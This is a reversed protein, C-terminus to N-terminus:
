HRGLIQHDKNPTGCPARFFLDAPSAPLAHSVSDYVRCDVRRKARQILWTRPRLDGFTHASSQTHLHLCNM